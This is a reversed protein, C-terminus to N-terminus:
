SAPKNNQVLFVGLLIASGGMIKLVTIQEDLFLAAFIVAAVPMLYHYVMTRTVGIRQIGQYWLVYAIGAAILSAFILASWSLPSVANWPQDILAPISIPLLLASGAFISYATVTLPSYKALLPKAAISYIAWSVTACLTLFDGAFGHGSLVPAGHHSRIILFIGTSALGLGMGVRRTIRENGQKAMILAGFLPSLSILMASNAATTYKLGFMFLINYLAIGIFGLKVLPFRDAREVFFPEKTAYMVTFLFVAALAFRIVTFSLPHFDALTYKIVSFNIGWVLAVFLLRFNLM